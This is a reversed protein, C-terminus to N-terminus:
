RLPSKLQAKVNSYKSALITYKKGRFVHFNPMQDKFNTNKYIYQLVTVASITKTTQHINVNFNILSFIYKCPLTLIKMHRKVHRHM